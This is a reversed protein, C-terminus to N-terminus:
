DMYAHPNEGRSSGYEHAFITINESVELDKKTKKM